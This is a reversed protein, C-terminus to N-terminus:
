QKHESSRHRAWDLKQCEKSCYSATGCPCRKLGEKNCKLWDCLDRCLLCSCRFRFYKMLYERAVSPPSQTGENLYNFTLEEGKKIAHLAVLTVTPQPKMPKTNPECSHNLRSLRPYFGHRDPIWFGSIPTGKITMGGVPIVTVAGTLCNTQMVNYLYRVDDVSEHYENAYLELIAQDETTWPNQEGLMTAYKQEQLTKCLDAVSRSHKLADEVVGWVFSENYREPHQNIFDVKPSLFRATEILIAEGEAFNRTAFAGLSQPVILSTKIDMEKSCLIVMNSKHTGLTRQLSGFSPFCFVFLLIGFILFMNSRPFVM